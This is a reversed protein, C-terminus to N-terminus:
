AAKKKGSKKGCAAVLESKKIKTNGKKLPKGAIPDLKVLKRKHVGYGTPLDGDKLMRIPCRTCRDKSECCKTKPLKATKGVVVVM